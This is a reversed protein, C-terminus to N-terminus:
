VPQPPADARGIRIQTEAAILGAAVAADLDTRMMRTVMQTSAVSTRLPLTIRLVPRPPPSDHAVDGTEVAQEESVTAVVQRPLSPVAEGRRRARVDVVLMRDRLLFAEAICDCALTVALRDPASGDLRGVRARTIRSFVGVTRFGNGQGAVSLLVDRGDQSLEWEVPAVLDVVLRTFGAHEGSRVGLPAAVGFSPMVCLSLISGFILSM